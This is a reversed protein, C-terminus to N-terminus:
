ILAVPDFPPDQRGREDAREWAAAAGDWDGAHSLLLGLRFAGFGDGREDSRRYAEVAERTEGRAEHFVGAYAAATGHGQEDARRYAEEARALDGHRALENGQEFVSQPHQEIERRRGYSAHPEL